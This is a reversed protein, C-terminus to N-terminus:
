EAVRFEQLSRLVSDSLLDHLPTLGKLFNQLCGECFEKFLGLAMLFGSKECQLVTSLSLHFGSLFM